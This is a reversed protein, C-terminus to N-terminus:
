SSDCRMTVLQNTTTNTSLGSSAHIVFLYNIVLLIFKKKVISFNNNEM